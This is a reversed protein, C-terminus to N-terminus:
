QSNAIGPPTLVDTVVIPLHGWDVVGANWWEVIGTKGVKGDRNERFERSDQFHVERKAYYLQRSTDPRVDTLRDVLLHVSYLYADGVSEREGRKVPDM